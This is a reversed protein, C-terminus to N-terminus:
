AVGLYARRIQPDARLSETDGEAVIHGTELV